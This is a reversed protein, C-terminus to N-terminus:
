PYCCQLQRRTTLFRTLYTPETEEKQRPGTLVLIRVINIDPEVYQYGHQIITDISTFYFHLCSPTHCLPDGYTGYFIAQGLPSVVGNDAAYRAGALMYQNYVWDRQLKNFEGNSSCSERKWDDCFGELGTTNGRNKRDCHPLESIQHIRTLHKSLANNPYHDTYAAIM